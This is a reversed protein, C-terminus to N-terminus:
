YQRIQIEAHVKSSFGNYYPANFVLTGVGSSLSPIATYFSGLQTATNSDIITVTNPSVVKGHYIKDYYITNNGDSTIASVIIRVSFVLPRGTGFIATDSVTYTKLVTPTNSAVSIAFRESYLSGSNNNSVDRWIEPNEPTGVFNARTSLYNRYKLVGANSYLISGHTTTASPDASNGILNLNGGLGSFTSQATSPTFTTSGGLINVKNTGLNLLFLQMNGYFLDMHGYRNSVSAGPALVLSGGYGTNSAHTLNNGYMYTTLAVDAIGSKSVSDFQYDSVGNYRLGKSILVPSSNGPNGTLFQVRQTKIGTETFSSLDGNVPISGSIWNTGNYYLVFNSSLGNTTTDITYGKIGSVVPLLGTGSLDSALKITGLTLSTAATPASGAIFSNLAILANNVNTKTVGNVVVNTSVQTDSHATSNAIHTNLDTISAAYKVMNEKLNYSWPHSGVSGYSEM